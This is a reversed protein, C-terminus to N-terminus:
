KCARMCGLVLIVYQLNKVQFKEIEIIPSLIINKADKKNTLKLM